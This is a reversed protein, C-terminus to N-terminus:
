SSQIPVKLDIAYPLLFIALDINLDAEQHTVLLVLGTPCARLYLNYLLLAQSLVPGKGIYLLAQSKKV